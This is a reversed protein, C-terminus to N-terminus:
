GHKLAELWKLVFNSISVIDNLDFKPISINLDPMDTVVALLRTDDLCRLNTSIQKRVVEIKDCPMSSFGELLVVDANPFYMDAVQQPTISEQMDQVLMMQESGLLITGQAGAHKHRWSDKGVTDLVLPHHSHKISCVCLGQASLHSILKEILTTKGSNSFGVIALVPTM